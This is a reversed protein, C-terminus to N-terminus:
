KQLEYYVLEALEAVSEIAAYEEARPHIGFDKQVSYLLLVKKTSDSTAHDCPTAQDLNRLMKSDLKMTRQVSLKALERINDEQVDDGLLYKSLIYKYLHEQLFELTLHEEQKVIEAERLAASKAKGLLGAVLKKREEVNM